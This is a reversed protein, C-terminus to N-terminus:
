VDEQQQTQSTARRAPPGIAGRVAAYPTSGRDDVQDECGNVGSAAAM